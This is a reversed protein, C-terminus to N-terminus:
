APHTGCGDSCSARCQLLVRQVPGSDTRVRAPDTLIANVKEQLTNLRPTARLFAFLFTLMTANTLRLPGLGVLVIGSLLVLSMTQFHRSSDSTRWESQMLQDLMAGYRKNFLMHETDQAEFAKVTKLNQLREMSSDFVAITKLSIEAGAVYATRARRRQWPILLGFCVLSICTLLPSLYLALGLMLLGVLGSSIAQMLNNTIQGTRDLGSTLHMTLDSSRIRTLFNWDAHVVAGFIDSGLAGRVKLLVGMRLTNLLGNLQALLGVIAVIAILLAAAWWPRPLGTAALAHFMLQTRPGASNERSGGDFLALLPFIM